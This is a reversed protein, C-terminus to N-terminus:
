NVDLPNLLNNLGGGLFFPSLNFYLSHSTLSIVSPIDNKLDPIAFTGNAMLVPLVVEKEGIATYQGCVKLAERQVEKFLGRDLTMLMGNILAQAALEKQKEDPESVNAVAEPENNSAFVKRLSDILQFILWSGVDANLRSIQYRKENVVVDKTDSVM